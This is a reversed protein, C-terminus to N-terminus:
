GRFAVTRLRNEAEVELQRALRRFRLGSEIPVPPRSGDFHTAPNARISEEYTPMTVQIAPLSRPKRWRLMKACSRGEKIQEPYQDTRRPSLHRHRSHSVWLNLVSGAERGGAM